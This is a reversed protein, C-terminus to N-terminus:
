LSFGDDGSEKPVFSGPKFLRNIILESWKQSLKEKEVKLREENLSGFDKEEIVKIIKLEGRMEIEILKNLLAQIKFDLEDYLVFVFVFDAEGEIAHVAAPIDEPFPVFITDLELDAIQGAIREELEPFFNIGTKSDSVLFIHM